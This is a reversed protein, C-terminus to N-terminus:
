VDDGRLCPLARDDGSLINSGCTVLVFPLSRVSCNMGSFHVKGSEKGAALAFVGHVATPDLLDADGVVFGGQADKAVPAGATQMAVKSSARKPSAVVPEGATPMTTARCSGAMTQRSFFILSFAAM